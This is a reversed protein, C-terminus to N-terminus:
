ANKNTNKAHGSGKKKQSAAVAAWYGLGGERTNDAFQRLRRAIVTQQQHAPYSSIGKSM